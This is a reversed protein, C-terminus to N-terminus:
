EMERLMDLIATVAKAQTNTRIYNYKMETQFADAAMAKSKDSYIEIRAFVSLLYDYLRFADKEEKTMGAITIPLNM